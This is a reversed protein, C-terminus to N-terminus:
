WSLKFEADVVSTLRGRHLNVVSSLPIRLFQVFAQYQLGVYGDSGESASVPGAV